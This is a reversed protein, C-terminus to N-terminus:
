TANCDGWKASIIIDGNGDTLWLCRYIIEYIKGEVWSPVNDWKVVYGSPANDSFSLNSGAKFIISCLYDYGSTPTPLTVALSSPTDNVVKTDYSTLIISQESTTITIIPVGDITPKNKIYDAKTPDTQNWDPIPYPTSATNGIIKSM